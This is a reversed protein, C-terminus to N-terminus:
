PAPLACRFGLTTRAVNPDFNGRTTVTLEDESSLWSGGRLSKFEGEAPGRPNQPPAGEYYDRDYWDDVWEMVNGLMDYTGIPSQGDPYSGVPATDGHGDDVSVDRREANSTPCNIDCMNLATSSFEEGWPYLTRQLQFPDYGAAREWEAETPLRAGRWQCFADAM